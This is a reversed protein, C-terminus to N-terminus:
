RVISGNDPKDVRRVAQEEEGCWVTYWVIDTYRVGRLTGCVVCMTMVDPQKDEGGCM